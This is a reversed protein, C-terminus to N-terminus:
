ISRRDPRRYKFYGHRLGVSSRHLVVGIRDSDGIAGGFAELNWGLGNFGLLGYQASEHQVVLAPILDGVLHVGVIEVALFVAKNEAGDGGQAVLRMRRVHDGNGLPQFFIGLQFVGAAEAVQAGQGVVGGTGGVDDGVGGDHALAGEHAIEDAHGVVDGVAGIGGLPTAGALQQIRRFFM